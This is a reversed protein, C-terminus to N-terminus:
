NHVHLTDTAKSVFCLLMVIILDWTQVCPFLFYLFKTLQYISFYFEPFWWSYKPGFSFFRSPRIILLPSAIEFSLLSCNPTVQFTLLFKQDCSFFSESYSSQLLLVGDTKPCKPTRLLYSEDSHPLLPSHAHFFQALAFPPPTDICHRDLLQGKIDRPNM